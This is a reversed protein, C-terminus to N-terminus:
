LANESSGGGSKQQAIAYYNQIITYTDADGPYYVTYGNYDPYDDGSLLWFMVGDGDHTDVVNYWDTYVRNRDDVAEPKRRNRIHWLSWEVYMRIDCSILFFSIDLM